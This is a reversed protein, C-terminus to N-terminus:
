RELCNAQWRGQSRLANEVMRTRATLAVNHKVCSRSQLGAIQPVEVPSAVRLRNNAGELAPANGAALRRKPLVDFGENCDVTKVCGRKDANQLHPVQNSVVSKM